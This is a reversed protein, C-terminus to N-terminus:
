LDFSVKAAYSGPSPVKASKLADVVCDVTAFAEPSSSSVGLAQIKGEKGAPQVYATVHYTSSATKKCALAADGKSKIVEAMKDSPWSTPERADGPTFSLSKRAEAEGGQPTPWRTASLADVMCRETARDGLSSQELVVYRAKGDQGIRVLFAVDGALYEIKGHGKQHCSMIAAEASAFARDAEKQDVEGLESQVSPGSSKKGASSPESDEATNEATPAVPEPEKGGCALALLALSIMSAKGIM